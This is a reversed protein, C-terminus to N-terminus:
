LHYLICKITLNTQYFNFLISNTLQLSNFCNFSSSIVQRKIETALEVEVSHDILRKM